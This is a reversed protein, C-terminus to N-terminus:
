LGGRGTVPIAKCILFENRFDHHTKQLCLKIPMGEEGNCKCIQVQVPGCLLGVDAV